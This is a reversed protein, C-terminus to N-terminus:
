PISNLATLHVRQKDVAGGAAKEIGKAVQEIVEEWLEAPSADTAYIGAVERQGYSASYFYTRQIRM